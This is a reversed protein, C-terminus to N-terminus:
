IIRMERLFPSPRNNHHTTDTFFMLVRKARTGAVYVVRRSENYQATREIEDPIREVLYHPFQDLDPRLDHAMGPLYDELHSLHRDRALQEAGNQFPNPLQSQGCRYGASPFLSLIRM